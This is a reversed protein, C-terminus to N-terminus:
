GIGSGVAMRLVTVEMGYIKIRKNIEDIVGDLLAAPHATEEVPLTLGGAEILPRIDDPGLRAFRDRLLSDLFDGIVRDARTTRGGLTRDFVAADAIRWQVQCDLPLSDKRNTLYTGQYRAQFGDPLPRAEEVFPIKVRTGPDSTVRQPKGFRLIQVTEGPVTRYFANYVAVGGFLILVIALAASLRRANARLLRAGAGQKLDPLPMASLSRYAWALVALYVMGGYATLLGAVIASGPFSRGSALALQGYGALVGPLIVLVLFLRLGNGRTLRWIRKPAIDHGAAAAPLLLVFRVPFSGVVSIAVIWGLVYAVSPLPNNDSAALHLFVIAALVWQLLHWIVVTLLLGGVVLVLFNLGYRQRLRPDSEGASAGLLLHREFNWALWLIAAWLFGYAAVQVMWGMHLYGAAIPLLIVLALTLLSRVLAKWSAAELYFPAMLARGMVAGVPVRPKTV